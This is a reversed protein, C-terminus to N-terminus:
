IKKWDSELTHKLCCDRGPAEMTEGWFGESCVADTTNRPLVVAAATPISRLEVSCSLSM